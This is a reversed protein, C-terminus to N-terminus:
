FDIGGRKLTSSGTVKQEKTFENEPVQWSILRRNVDEDLNLKGQQVLRLAAVATVAKSISGAQFLTAANVSENSGTELVGYGKAWEIKGNNVVAVSVGPTNFFRMRDALKMPVFPQGRVVVPLLLGNEVRQIRQALDPTNQSSNDAAEGSRAGSSSFTCNSTGSFGSVLLLTLFLLGTTKVRM